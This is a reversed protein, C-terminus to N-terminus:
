RTKEEVRCLLQVRRVLPINGFSYVVLLCCGYSAFQFRQVTRTGQLESVDFMPLAPLQVNTFTVKCFSAAIQFVTVGWILFMVFIVVRGILWPVLLCRNEQFIVPIYKEVPTEHPPQVSKAAYLLLVGTTIMLLSAFIIGVYTSDELTKNVAHNSISRPSIRLAIITALPESKKSSNPNRHHKFHSLVGLLLAVACIQWNPLHLRPKTSPRARVIEVVGVITTGINLPLCGCSKLRCM